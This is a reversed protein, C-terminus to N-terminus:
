DKSDSLSKELEERITEIMAIDADYEKLHGEQIKRMFRDDGDAARDSIMQRVDHLREIIMGVVGDCYERGYAHCFALLKHARDPTSALGVRLCKENSFLPAFSYVAYAIDYLRPGPCATDFDIIAALHGDRFICNYPAFDNHCIVDSALPGHYETQWKLDSGHQFGETADHYIRLQKAAELLIQDSWLADPVTKTKDFYGADGPIYSLIERGEPDFGLARPAGDFGKQELHTLLQHVAPTWYGATRMVKDGHRVASAM